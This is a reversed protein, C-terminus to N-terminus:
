TKDHDSTNQKRQQYQVFAGVAGGIVGFVLFFALCFIAVDDPVEQKAQAYGLAAGFLGSIVLQKPDLLRM